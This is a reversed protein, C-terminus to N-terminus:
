SVIVVDSVIMAETLGGVFSCVTVFSLCSTIWQDIVHGSCGLLINRIVEFCVWLSRNHRKLNAPM